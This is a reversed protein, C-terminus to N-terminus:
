TSWKEFLENLTETDKYPDRDTIIEDLIEKLTEWEPPTTEYWSFRRRGSPDEILGRMLVQVLKKETQIAM